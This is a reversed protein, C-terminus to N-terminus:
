NINHHFKVRKLRAMLFRVFNRLIKKFHLSFLFILKPASSTPKNQSTKYTRYTKHTRHTRYTQYSSSRHTKEQKICRRELAETKWSIWNWDGLRIIWCIIANTLWAFWSIQAFLEKEQKWFSETLKLHNTKTKEM